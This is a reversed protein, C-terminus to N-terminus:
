ALNLQARWVSEDRLIGAEACINLSDFREVYDIKEIPTPLLGIQAIVAALDASEEFTLPRNGLRSNVADRAQQGSVVGRAVLYVVARVTAVPLPSAGAGRTVIRDWLGAM